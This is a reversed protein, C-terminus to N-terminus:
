VAVGGNRAKNGINQSWACRKGIIRGGPQLRALAAAQPADVVVGKLLYALTSIINEALLAPNTAELGLRRGIPDGKIVRRRYRKGTISLLWRRQLRKIAAVDSARIHALLHCHGGKRDGNEHVWLWATKSGRRALAKAMLGTFRGTAAAMSALPVGAAEWHITILRTFPLGIVSAHHAAAALKAAQASTLEHSERTARNRAGGRSVPQRASKSGVGISLYKIALDTGTNAVSPSDVAQPQGALNSVEGFGCARHLKLSRGHLAPKSAAHMASAMM